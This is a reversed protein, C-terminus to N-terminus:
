HPKGRRKLLVPGVICIIEQQQDNAQQSIPRKCKAQETHLVIGYMIKQRITKMDTFGDAVSLKRKPTRIEIQAIRNVSIHLAAGPIRYDPYERQDAPIIDGQKMILVEEVNEQCSNSHVFQDVPENLM